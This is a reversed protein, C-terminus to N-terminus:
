GKVVSKVLRAVVRSQAGAVLRETVKVLFRPWPDAAVLALQELDGRELFRGDHLAALLRGRHDLTADDVVNFAADVVAEFSEWDRQVAEPTAQVLLPAPCLRLRPGVPGLARAVDFGGAAFGEAHLAALAESLATLDRTMGQPVMRLSDFAAAHNNTAVEPAVERAIIVQRVLPGGPDSVADDDDVLVDYVPQVGRWLRAAAVFPLLAGKSPDEAELLWVPRGVVADQAQHTKVGESRAFLAGKVYRSHSGARTEAALSLGGLTQARPLAIALPGPLARLMEDASAFRRAPDTHLAAELFASWAPPIEPNFTSPAPPPMSRDATAASFPPRGTLARYTIAALAYLDGDVDAPQGFLMQPSLYPWVSALGGTETSRLALLRHAGTDLLKVGGPLLFVNQPKLGGHVLGTRHAASLADLVQQVMPLLWGADGGKNLKDELLVAGDGGEKLPAGHLESVVFGQAMNLEVLKVLAPHALAAAARAEKAWAQVADSALVQAGFIKVAVPRDSFADYARFVQGVGGGGLPEGLLYRGNLLLRQEDAQEVAPEAPASEDPEGLLSDFSSAPPKSSSLAPPQSPAKGAAPVASSANSSTQQIAAFAAARASSLLAELTAPPTENEFRRALEEDSCLRAHARQWRSLTSRAAEVYGLASFALALTPAARCLVADRDVAGAKDIARQLLSIADDHRGFRALIRGLRLAAKDDDPHMELWRELLLGAERANGLEEWCRAADSWAAADDFARAALLHEGRAQYVRGVERHRGAKQLSGILVDGLGRTIADGVLRELASNDDLTIAVRVASVVDSAAEFCALATRHEFVQEYLLAARRSQQHHRLANAAAIHEGADLLRKVEREVDDSLTTTTTTTTTTPAPSAPM